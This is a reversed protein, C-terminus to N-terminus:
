VLLHNGTLLCILMRDVLAEQGILVRSMEERLPKVFAAKQEIEATLDNTM